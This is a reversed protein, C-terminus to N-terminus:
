YSGRAIRGREGVDDGDDDDHGDTGDDLEAEGDAPNDQANEASDEMATQEDRLLRQSALGQLLLHPPRIQLLATTKKPNPATM